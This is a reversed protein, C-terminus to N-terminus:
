TTKGLNGFITQVAAQLTVALLKANEAGRAAKCEQKLTALTAAAITTATAGTIQTQPISLAAGCFDNTAGDHQVCLCVMDTALSKGAKTGDSAAKACMTDRDTAAKWPFKSAAIGPLRTNPDTVADTSPSDTAYLARAMADRAEQRLTTVQSIKNKVDKRLDLAAKTIKYFSPQLAKRRPEPLPLNYRQIFAKDEQVGPKTQPYNAIMMAIIDDDIGKYYDKAAAKEEKLTQPAPPQDEAELVDAMAKQLVTLNLKIITTMISELQKDVMTKTGDAGTTVEPDPVVQVLLNYLGCMDRYEKTNADATSGFEVTFMIILTIKLLMRHM